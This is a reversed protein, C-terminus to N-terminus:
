KCGTCIGSALECQKWGGARPFVQPFFRPPRARPAFVYIHTLSACNYLQAVLLMNVARADGVPPDLIYILM